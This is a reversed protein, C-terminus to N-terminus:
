LDEVEMATDAPSSTSPARSFYHLLTRSQRPYFELQNEGDKDGDPEERANSIGSKSSFTGGDDAFVSPASVDDTIWRSPNQDATMLIRLTKEYVTEKACNRSKANRGHAAGSPVTSRMGTAVGSVMGGNGPSFQRNRGFDCGARSDASGGSSGSTGAAANGGRHDFGGVPTRRKVPTFSAPFGYRHQQTRWPLVAPSVTGMRVRSSSSASASM